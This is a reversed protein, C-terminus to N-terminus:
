EPVIEVLNPPSSPDFGGVPTLDSAASISNSPIFISTPMANQHQSKKDRAQLDNEM